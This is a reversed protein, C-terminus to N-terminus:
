LIIYIKPWFDVDNFNMNELFAVFISSIKVMSKFTLNVTFIEDITTAKKSFMFKLTTLFRDLKTVRGHFSSLGYQWVQQEEQSINVEMDLM